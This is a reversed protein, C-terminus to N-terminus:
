VVALNQNFHTKNTKKELKEKRTIIQSVSLISIIIFFFPDRATIARRTAEALQTM